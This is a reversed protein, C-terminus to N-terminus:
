KFEREHFWLNFAWKEGAEVPCGAHLSHPHIDTTGMVVNSFILLRGFKPSVKIGLKPFETEGGGDVDNLYGLATRLRQGGRATCRQGRETALDYSDFHAKYQQEVGYHIVQFAEAHNLPLELAAAVREGLQLTLQNFNHAVWHVSNTRGDSVSGASEDSVRAREMKGQVIQMLNEAEEASFFDDIVFVFPDNHLQHITYQPAAAASMVYDKASLIIV